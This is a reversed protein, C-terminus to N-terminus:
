RASAPGTQSPSNVQTSEWMENFWDTYITIQERMNSSEQGFVSVEHPELGGMNTRPWLLGHIMRNKNVIAFFLSANYRKQKIELNDILGDKKMQKWSDITTQISSVSQDPKGEINPFDDTPYFLLLRVNSMHTRDAWLHERFTHSTYACIMMEDVRTVDKLWERFAIAFSGFSQPQQANLGLRELQKILYYLTALIVTGLLAVQASQSRPTNATPVITTVVKWVVFALASVYLGLTEIRNWNFKEFAM